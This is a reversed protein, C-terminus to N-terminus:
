TSSACVEQIRKQAREKDFYVIKGNFVTILNKGKLARGKFPSNKSKSHSDGIEFHWRMEPDVIAINARAGVAIHPAPIGLIKAPHTTILALFKNPPMKGSLVLKEFCLAFATELGIIGFPAHDFPKSKDLKSHPAHDTAIADIVGEVLAQEVAEVDKKSRLPPNMKFSTDYPTMEADSLVLHHPTVDATVSLGQAKAQRILDVSAKASTHAFHLRGGTYRLVEIERAVCAAESASPIGKMGLCTSQMGENMSGGHSLNHDEPHSIIPRGHLRAYEFARRLVDLNSIPMGDDSFAIAGMDSMEVMNTLEVGKLGKTVAGVPLVEIVAREHIRKLIRDLIEACDTPPDTNAMAVVTTYGGAAAAQTGSSIDERDSQGLDRLHTHMDVFGPMVWCGQADVVTEGDKAKLESELETIKGDRIRVDLSQNSAVNSSPKGGAETPNIVRGNKILIASEM